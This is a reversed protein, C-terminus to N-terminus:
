PAVKVDRNILRLEALNHNHYRKVSIQDGRRLAGRDVGALSTTEMVNWQETGNGSRVSLANGNVSTVVGSHVTPREEFRLTAVHGTTLVQAFVWDGPEVGGVIRTGGDVHWTGRSHATTRIVIEGNGYSEVVGYYGNDAFCVTPIAICIMLLLLGAIHIGAIQFRITDAAM